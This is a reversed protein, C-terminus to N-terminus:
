TSPAPSATARPCRSPSCRSAAPTSPWWDTRLSSAAVVRALRAGALEGAGGSPPMISDAALGGMSGHAALSVAPDHHGDDLEVSTLVTGAFLTVLQTSDASWAAVRVPSGVRLPRLGQADVAAPSWRRLPDVM